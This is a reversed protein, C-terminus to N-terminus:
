ARYLSYKAEVTGTVMVVSLGILVPLVSLQVKVQQTSTLIIFIRLGTQVGKACRTSPTQITVAVAEEPSRTQLFLGIWLVLGFPYTQVCIGVGDFADSTTIRKGCVGPSACCSSLSQQITARGSREQHCMASDEDSALATGSSIGNTGDLLARFDRAAGLASPEVQWTFTRLCHIGHGFVLTVRSINIGPHRSPNYGDRHETKTKKSRKPTESKWITWTLPIM